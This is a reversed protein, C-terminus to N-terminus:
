VFCLEYYACPSCYPKREPPPPLDHGCLVEIDVIVRELEAIDVQELEVRVQEKLLPYHIVGSVGDIGLQKLYYIYYKVQWISSEEISRSKKVEHIERSQRMFDIAISDGILVHKDERVYSREDLLKGLKVDDSEDEMTIHHSYYWLKRLCTFYYAIMVGTVKM